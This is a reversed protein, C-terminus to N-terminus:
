FELGTQIQTYVSSINFCRRVHLSTMGLLTLMPSGRCVCSQQLRAPQLAANMRGRGEKTRVFLSVFFYDDIGPINSFM